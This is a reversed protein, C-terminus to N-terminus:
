KAKGGDGPPKKADQEAETVLKEILAEIAKEGHVNKARIVGRHDIFFLSPWGTM